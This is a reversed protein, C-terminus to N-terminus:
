IGEPLAIESHHKTLTHFPCHIKQPQNKDDLFYQEYELIDPHGYKGLTPSVSLFDYNAIRNRVLSFANRTSEETKLIKDFVWRPQFTLMFCSARRSQRLLHAPTNCVVFIPEGSFCFEWKPDTIRTPIHNPWSEDDREALGELTKWFIERYTEIPKIEAPRTFIVLSTNPGFTRSDRIFEKLSASILDLDLAEQFIYRLQDTKFGQVGFICPFPRNRSQLNASFESFLIQQWSGQAYRHSIDSRRLLTTATVSIEKNPIVSYYFTNMIQLLIM